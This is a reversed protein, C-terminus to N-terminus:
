FVKLYGYLIIGNLINNKLESSLKSYDEEFLIKIRRKIVKEYKHLDGLEQPKCQLYLDVDSDALDEGKSASGFLIIADPMCEDKLYDMIGKENLTLIMDLKKLLRFKESERNAWYVPYKHIRHRSKIIYGERSLESLYRSVSVPALDILRSLERLQFGAGEPKPDDFFIRM